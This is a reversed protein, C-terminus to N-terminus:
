VTAASSPAPLALSAAASVTVVLASVLAGPRGLRTWTVCRCPLRIVSAQAGGAVVDADHAVPDVADAAVARDGRGAGQM